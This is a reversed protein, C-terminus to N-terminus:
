RRQEKTDRAIVDRVAPIRSAVKVLAATVTSPLKAEATKVLEAYTNRTTADYM